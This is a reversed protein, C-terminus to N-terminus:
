LLDNLGTGGCHFAQPFPSVVLNGSKKLAERAFNARYTRDYLKLVERLHSDSRLVIINIMATEGGHRATLAAHLEDVDARVDAYM